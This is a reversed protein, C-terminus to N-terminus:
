CRPRPHLAIYRVDPNLRAVRGADLCIPSRGARGLDVAGDPRTNVAFGLDQRRFRQPTETIEKFRGVRTGDGDYLCVYPAKCWLLYQDVALSFNGGIAVPLVVGAILLTRSSQRAWGSAARRKTRLAPRKTSDRAVANAM